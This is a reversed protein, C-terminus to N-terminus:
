QVRSNIESRIKKLQAAAVANLFALGVLLMINSLHYGKMFTWIFILVVLVVFLFGLWRVFTRTSQEQSKLEELSLQSLPKNSFIGFM